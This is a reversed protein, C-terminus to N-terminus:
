TSRVEPNGTTLTALLEDLQAQRATRIEADARRLREEEQMHALLDSANQEAVALAQTGLAEVRDVKAPLSEPADPTQEPFWSAIRDLTSGADHDALQQGLYWRGLAAAAGLIAVAQAALAVALEM